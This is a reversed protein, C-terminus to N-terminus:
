EEVNVLDTVDRQTQIWGYAVCPFSIFFYFLYNPTVSPFLFKGASIWKVPWIISTVAFGM